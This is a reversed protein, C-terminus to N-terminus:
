KVTKGSHEGLPLTMYEKFVMVPVHLLTSIWFAICKPYLTNSTYLCCWKLSFHVSRKQAYLSVKEIDLSLHFYVTILSKLCYSFQTDIRWITLPPVIWGFGFVRTNDCFHILEWSVHETNPVLYRDINQVLINSQCGYLFAVFVRFMALGVDVYWCEHCCVSM